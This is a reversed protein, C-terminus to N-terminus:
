KRILYFIENEFELIEYFYGLRRCMQEVWGRYPHNMKKGSITKTSFSAAIWRCDVEKILKEALKHGKEMEISDLLKFMFCIDAKPLNLKKNKIERLNIMEAKGAIKDKAFFDKVIEIILSSIDVAFYKPRAGLFNYSLPNLGCGLDLISKPEGTVEFIKRYLEPYAGFREKASEHGFLLKEFDKTKEAIIFVGVSKRLVARTKKIIERYIKSKKSLTSSLFDAYKRSYSIIKLMESKVFFDEIGSLEKKSKIDDVLQSITKDPIQKNNVIM